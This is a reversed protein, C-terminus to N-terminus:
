ESRKLQGIIVRPRGMHILLDQYFAILGRLPVSIQSGLRLVERVDLAGILDLQVSADHDRHACVYNRIRSLFAHHQKRFSSLERGITNLRVTQDDGLQIDSLWGRFQKGLLEPLDESLETLLVALGRAHFKRHWESRAFVIAEAYTSIDQEAIAVFLGVNYIGAFTPINAAKAKDCNSKLSQQLSASAAVRRRNKWRYRLRSPTALINRLTEMSSREVANQYTPLYALHPMNLLLNLGM